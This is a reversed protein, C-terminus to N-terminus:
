CKNCIQCFNATVYVAWIMWFHRFYQQLQIVIDYRCKFFDQEHLNKTVRNIVIWIGLMWNTVKIM